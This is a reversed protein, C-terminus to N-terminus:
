RGGRFVYGRSKMLSEPLLRPAVYGRSIYSFFKKLSKLSNYTMSKYLSFNELSKLPKCVTTLASYALSNGQLSCREQVSYLSDTLEIFLRTLERYLSGTFWRKLPTKPGQKVGYSWPTQALNQQLIVTKRLLISIKKLNSTTVLPM